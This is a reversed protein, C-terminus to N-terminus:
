MKKLHGEKMVLQCSKKRKKRRETRDREIRIKKEVKKENMRKDSENMGSAKKNLSLIYSM